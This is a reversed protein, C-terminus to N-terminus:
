PWALSRCGPALFHWAHAPIRLVSRIPEMSSHFILQEYHWYKRISDSTASIESRWIIAWTARSTGGCVPGRVRWESSSRLFPTSSVPPGNWIIRRGTKVWARAGYMLLLIRRLGRSHLICLASHLVRSWRFASHGGRGLGRGM